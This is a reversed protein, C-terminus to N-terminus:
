QYTQGSDVAAVNPPRPPASLVASSPVFVLCLVPFRALLKIIRRPSYPPLDADKDYVSPQRRWFLTSSFSSQAALPPGAVNRM